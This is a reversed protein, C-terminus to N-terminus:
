RKGGNDGGAEDQAQRLARRDMAGSASAAAAKTEARDLAKGDADRPANRRPHDATQPSVQKLTGDKQREYSGGQRIM